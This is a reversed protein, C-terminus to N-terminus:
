RVFVSHQIHFYRMRSKKHQPPPVTSTGFGLEAYAYCLLKVFHMDSVYQIHYNQKWKKSRAASLVCGCYGAHPSARGLGLTRCECTARHCKPGASSKNRTASSKNRT